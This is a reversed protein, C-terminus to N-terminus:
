PKSEVPGLRRFHYVADRQQGDKRFTTMNRDSVSTTHESRVKFLGGPTIREVYGRWVLRGMEYVGVYSGVELSALWNRHAIVRELVSM